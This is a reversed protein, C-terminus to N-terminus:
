HALATKPNVSLNAMIQYRNLGDVSDRYAESPYGFPKM